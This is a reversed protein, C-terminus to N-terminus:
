FDVRLFHTGAPLSFTEPYDREPGIEFGVRADGVGVAM